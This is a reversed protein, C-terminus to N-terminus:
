AVRKIGDRLMFFIHANPCFRSDGDVEGSLWRECLDVASCKRCRYRATRMLEAGSDDVEFTAASLGVSTMMSRMRREYSVSKYQRSRAVLDIMSVALVISAQEFMRLLM